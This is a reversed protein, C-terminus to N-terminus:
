YFARMGKTWWPVSPLNVKTGGEIFDIFSDLSVRTNSLIVLVRKNTRDVGFFSSHKNTLGAHSLVENNRSLGWFNGISFGKLEKLPKYLAPTNMVVHGLKAMSRLNARLAGFSPFDGLRIDPAEKFHPLYGKVSEGSVRLYNIGNKHCYNTLLENFSSQTAKELVLQMVATGINSYVFNGIDTPVTENLFSLLKEETLGKYIDPGVFFTKTDKPLGSTHTVLHKVQIGDYHVGLPLYKKIEDNLSLQKKEIAEQILIGLIGKSVSGIEFISEESPEEKGFSKIYESTGDHYYVIFSHHYGIKEMEKFIEIASGKAELTVTIVLTLFLVFNKM